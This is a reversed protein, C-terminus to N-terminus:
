KGCKSTVVQRYFGLEDRWYEGNFPWLVHEDDPKVVGFVLAEEKTLQGSVVEQDLKNREAATIDILIKSADRLHENLEDLYRQYRERALTGANRVALDRALSLADTVDGGVPSNRFAAPAKKYRADEEDLVRVYELNRLLQRDSLANEVIPKVTPSLAAKGARVDKLFDFFKTEADEGKFRNLIAELEKKIPEYRKRMRAVITTADQYQCITFSIVAKLIDAEPYFANPFYPSEITHINGLAHPYDGAMFYAWSQEFLADLWYESGVDVRNWYKVAASLKNGDIKPVSNDDLRVSASYYTRAMSLFALDRMRSEDEVGEVGEDLARVILQFSKVAPVSKRLQVNSIGTFFQAQVYYKSKTDVKGFLSIAEEYNRNRYKYRGLLYNLQWYLDRQQPNNFRAVQESKYKGVREIIDAPEPLQTALKSLWLLTENFKLHNTKDAIESFIAYSAQYFQLRYLAIALHYQAIQKNGEDDGTEGDVVRKLLLASESWREADFLRKAQAAEETMQGATVPGDAEDELEIEKPAAKKDNKKADGAKAAPAAPAKGQQAFATPAALMASALLCLTALGKRM